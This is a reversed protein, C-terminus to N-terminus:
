CEGRRRVYADLGKLYDAFYDKEEGDLDGRVNKGYATFAYVCAYGPFHAYVVRVGGSKGRGSRPPAFRLKRLGGTGPIVKGADPRRLLEKELAQLDEDGLGLDKWAIVFSGLYVITL